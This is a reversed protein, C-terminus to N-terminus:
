VASCSIGKLQSLVISTRKQGLLYLCGAEDFIKESHHLDPRCLMRGRSSKKRGALANEITFLTAFARGRITM